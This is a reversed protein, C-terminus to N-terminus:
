SPGSRVLSFCMDDITLLRAFNVEVMQMEKLRQWLHGVGFARGQLVSVVVCAFAGRRGSVGRNVTVPVAAATSM